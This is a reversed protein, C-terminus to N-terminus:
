APSGRSTRGGTELDVRYRLRVDDGYRPEIFEEVFQGGDAEIVRVLGACGARCDRCRAATPCSSPADQRLMSALVGTRRCLHRCLQEASVDQINNPSWGRALADAYARSSSRCALSQM